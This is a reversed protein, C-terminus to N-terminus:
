ECDRKCEDFLDCVGHMPAVGALCDPYQKECKSKCEAAAPTKQAPQNEQSSATAMLSLALGIALLSTRIM